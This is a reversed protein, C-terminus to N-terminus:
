KSAVVKGCLEDPDFPNITGPLRRERALECLFHGARVQGLGLAEPM